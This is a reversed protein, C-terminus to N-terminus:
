VSIIKVKMKKNYMVITLEDGMAYDNRYNVIKGNREIIAYGLKLIKRRNFMRINSILRKIKIIKNHHIDFLAFVINKILHVVRRNQRDYYYLISKIIKTFIYNLRKKCESKLPSLFEGVATPTPLRLDSVFDVITWDIEHGIASIIPIKSNFVARALNEGNFCMLDEASGGGRTIILVDLNKYNKNFFEIGKLISKEAENGQV